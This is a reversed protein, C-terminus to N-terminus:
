GTSQSIVHRPLTHGREYDSASMLRRGAPKVQGILLSGDACGLALGAGHAVLEGVGPGPAGVATSEVGLREGDDVEIYAGIGPTLARVTRELEAAPRGPDLLREEPRIKEAYTVGEEDQERLELVGAEARDLTEVLLRAGLPALRAGLSGATDDAHIPESRTVAVPGSDLGETLQFITVGTVADGAMLAREIPAAGRWRPLLSPHVNLMLFSSLLPEKVLQGFECVCIAEPAAGEISKVADADNVTEAQALELGLDRAALAVPPPAVKRGRGKPRDPPTVVLAPRHPSAALAGLVDVAFTSTGLFVTRV